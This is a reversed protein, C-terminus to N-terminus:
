NGVPLKSKLGRFRSENMLDPHTAEREWILKGCWVAYAIFKNASSWPFIWNRREFEHLLTWTLEVWRRLQFWVSGATLVNSSEVSFMNKEGVYFIVLQNKLSIAGVCLILTALSFALLFMVNRPLTGLDVTLQSPFNFLKWQYPFPRILFNLSSTHSKGSCHVTFHLFYYMRVQMKFNDPNWGAINLQYSIFAFKWASKNRGFRKHLM